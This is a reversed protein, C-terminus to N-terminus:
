LPYAMKVDFPSAIYGKFCHGLSYHEPLIISLDELGAHLFRAIPLEV